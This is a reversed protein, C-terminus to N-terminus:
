AMFMNTQREYDLTTASNHGPYVKYDGRLEKIRKLSKIIELPNGDPFDTRGVSGRFLTDGSFIIKDERFIYCGSGSTHGPTEIFEFETEGLSLKDGQTLLIDASFPTYNTCGLFRALNLNEDYLFPEEKEGLVIDAGYKDSLMKASKIHDYHGHTLLIYKINEEGAKELASMLAVSTDGPDVVLTEGSDKDTVVYCNTGIAGVTFTKVEIM